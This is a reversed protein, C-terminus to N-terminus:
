NSGVFVCGITKTLRKLMVANGNKKCATSFRNGLMMKQLHWSTMLMFWFTVLVFMWVVMQVRNCSKGCIGKPNKQLYLHKEGLDWKFGSMTNDRHVAWHAPSTGFGYLANHVRWRETPKCVQAEVMIKPPVVIVERTEVPKPRPALLFATRVDALGIGWDMEVSHALTARILIGDAGSAYLSGPAPDLDSSLMNGCVVARCKKKGGNPGAKRVTVLKGPVFEVNEQDLMSLDVPEIAKTEHVLSNYEKLMAEKWLPLEKRVDNLPITTTQLVEGQGALEGNELQMGCVHVVHNEKAKKLTILDRELWERETQLWDIRSGCFNGLYENSPVVDLLDHLSDVVNEHMWGLQKELTDLTETKVVVRKQYEGVDDNEPNEPKLIGKANTTSGLKKLEKNMLEEFCRDIEDKEGEPNEHVHEVGKECGKLGDFGDFFWLPSGGM